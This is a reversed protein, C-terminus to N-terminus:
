QNGGEDVPVYVRPTCDCDVEFCRGDRIDKAPVYLGEGNPNQCVAIAEHDEGQPPRAAPLAAAVRPDERGRMADLQEDSLEDDGRADRVRDLAAVVDLAIDHAADAPLPMDDMRMRVWLDADLLVAKVAEIEAREPM